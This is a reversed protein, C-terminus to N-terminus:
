FLKKITAKECEYSFFNQVLTNEYPVWDRLLQGSGTIRSLNFIADTNQSKQHCKIAKESLMCEHKYFFDGGSNTNKIAVNGGQLQITLYHTKKVQETKETLNEFNNTVTKGSVNCKLHVEDAIASGTGLIVGVFLGVSIRLSSKEM